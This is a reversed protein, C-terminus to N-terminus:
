TDLSVEPLIVPLQRMLQAAHAVGREHMDLAEEWTSCRDMWVERHLDWVRGFAVSRVTAATFVMTEFLIPLEGRGFSHDLGLFVTSVFYDGIDESAVRRQDVGREFWRAWAMPDEVPVALKHEDLIYNLNRMM